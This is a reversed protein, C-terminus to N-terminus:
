RHRHALGCCLCYRQLDLALRVLATAVANRDTVAADPSQDEVASEGTSFRADLTSQEGQPARLALGITRPQPNAAVEIRHVDVVPERELLFAIGCPRAFRKWYVADVCSHM